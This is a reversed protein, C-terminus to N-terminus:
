RTREPPDSEDTVAPRAGSRRRALAYARPVVRGDADRATPPIGAPPRVVPTGAVPSRRPAPRLDAPEDALLSQPGSGRRPAAARAPSTAGPAAAPAAPTRIGAILDAPARVVFPLELELSTAAFATDDIVPGAARPPELAVLGKRAAPFGGVAGACACGMRVAGDVLTAHGDLLQQALESAMDEEALERVTHALGASRLSDVVPLGGPLSHHRRRDPPIVADFAEPQDALDIARDALLRLMEEPTVRADYAEHDAGPCRGVYTLRLSGPAHLARLYRALAVPPPVLSVLYPGLEGGVELVRRAVHPCACLLAPGPGRAALARTCAGAVLEDGWSAPIVTEYGARLLGHALQIASAPHAALVADNGVVVLAPM